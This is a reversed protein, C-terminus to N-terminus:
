GVSLCTSKKIGRFGCDDKDYDGIQCYSEQDYYYALAPLMFASAILCGFSLM